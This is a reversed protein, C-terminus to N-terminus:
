SYLEIRDKIPISNNLMEKKWNDLQTLHKFWITQDYKSADILKEVNCLTSDIKSLISYDEMPFSEWYKISQLFRNGQLLENKLTDKDFINETNNKVHMLPPLNFISNSILSLKKEIVEIIREDISGGVMINMVIIKSKKQGVRDVRGIRQEIRMPNWHLDYNIVANCFQIDLGETGVPTMILIGKKTKRFSDIVKHRELFPTDGTMLFTVWNKSLEKQLVSVTESFECFIIWKDMKVTNLMKQLANIKPDYEILPDSIGLSSCFARSSSSALRYFTVKEFFSGSTTKRNAILEKIKEVYEVPYTVQITKIQRKAFHIGLNEKTFRTVLSNTIKKKNKRWLDEIMASIAQQSYEPLLISLESVFDDMSNNIPTASLGVRYKAHLAYKRASKYGLTESNRFNHIEDFVIVSVKIKENLKLRHIISSPLVYVTKTRNKTIVLLENEMTAFEDDNTVLFAKLLFKSELEEKWKMLLSPPCIVIGAQKLKSILYLQVYGASITKGVGVGDSILIANLNNYLLKMLPVLQYPAPKLSSILKMGGIKM